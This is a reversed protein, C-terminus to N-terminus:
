PGCSRPSAGSAASSRARRSTRGGRRRPAPEGARARPPRTRAAGARRGPAPRRRGRAPAAAGRRHPVRARAARRDPEAGARLADRGAGPSAQAARRQAARAGGAPRDACRDGAGARAGVRRERAAREDGARLRRRRARGDRAECAITVVGETTPLTLAVIRLSPEGGPLEYRWVARAGLRRLQPRPPEDGSAAIVDAALLSPDEPQASTSRSTRTSGGSPPRRACAPCRPAAGSRSGATRCPSGPSAARWASAHGATM